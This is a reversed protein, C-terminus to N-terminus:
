RPMFIAVKALARVAHSARLPMAGANMHPSDHFAITCDHFAITCDHFAIPLWNLQQSVKALQWCSDVPPQAKSGGCPGCVSAGAVQEGLFHHTRVEGRVGGWRAQTRVCAANRAPATMPKRSDERPRMVRKRV